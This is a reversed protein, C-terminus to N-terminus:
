DGKKAATRLVQGRANMFFYKNETVVGLSGGTTQYKLSVVYGGKGDPLVRGWELYRIADPNRLNNKLYDVVQWVTGDRENRPIEGGSEKAREVKTDTLRREFDKRELEVQERAKLYAYDRAFLRSRLEPALNTNQYTISGQALQLTISDETLGTVVGRVTSGSSLRLETVGELTPAKFETAYYAMLAQGRANWDYPAAGPVPMPPPGPNQALLSPPPTAPLPPSPQFVVPDSPATADLSDVDVARSRATDTSSPASEEAFNEPAPPQCGSLGSVLVCALLLRPHFSNM